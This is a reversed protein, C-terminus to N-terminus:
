RRAGLEALPPDLVRAQAAVAEPAEGIEQAMRTM